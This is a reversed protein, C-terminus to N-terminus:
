IKTGAKLDWSARECYMEAKVRKNVTPLLRYLGLNYLGVTVVAGNQAGVLTLGGNREDDAGRALNSFWQQWSSVSSAPFTVGIDSVDLIQSGDPAIACKWTFSDVTAVRSTDVGDIEFVFNSPLWSKQKPTLVPTGASSKDTTVKPASVSVAVYAPDKSAGDLAPITVESIFAQSISNRSKERYNFDCSIIAGNKRSYSGKDFSDKIWQYMPKSMGSGIQMTFDNWKINAVHKHQYYDTGVADLVVDLEREGGDLGVFKGVSVGDIDLSFRGATYTRQDAAAASGAFAGAGVGAGAAVAAAGAARGLFTRRSTGGAAGSM